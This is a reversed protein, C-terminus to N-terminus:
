KPWGDVLLTPPGSLNWADKNLNQELDLLWTRCSGADAFREVQARGDPWALVVVMQRTKNDFRTEIQLTASGREYLWVM